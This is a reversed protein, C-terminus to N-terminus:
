TGRAPLGDAGAQGTSVPTLSPAQVSPSGLGQHGPPADGQWGGGQGGMGAKLRSAWGAKPKGFPADPAGGPLAPGMGALTGTGLM